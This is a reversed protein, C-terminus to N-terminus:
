IKYSFCHNTDSMSVNGIMLPWQESSSNWLNKNPSLRSTRLCNTSYLSTLTPSNNSQLSPKQTFMWDLSLGSAWVWFELCDWLYNFYKNVLPAVSILNPYIKIKNWQVFPDIPCLNYFISTSLSLVNLQM